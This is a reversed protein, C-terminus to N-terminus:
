LSPMQATRSTQLAAWVRAPTLPMRLDDVGYPRLADLVANVIAPPAGICGAEGAGKVGLPNSPAPTVLRGTVYGPPADPATPLTYSGLDTTLPRGDGDYVVEEFLAQAVGQLLSGELQGEVILPDLVVGCDDVAVLRRLTVLGTDQDVTVVAVCAGYPFNQAGSAFEQEAFLRGGEAHVAGAVEAVSLGGLHGALEGPPVGLLKAAADRLQERVALAANHLASGGVTASRSAFSGTGAPVADTDGQVVRVDSAPVGLADGVIRSWVSEHGQGLASSGSRAVVTGDPHVSVSGYETGAPDGNSREVYVCMGLGVTAGAARAAAVEGTGALDLAMRLAAAYDGGDYLAGTHTRYPMQEPRILNRLRVEAPDLGAAQAYADVAREMGYAAEPRGAGRYPGTPARNTVVIRTTVAVEDIDYAGQAMLRTFLPVASGNHPYAGVDGLIEVRAARIRGDETGALEVRQYMGRGHAGSEFQETRTQHWAVPRGLRAACATVVPYEPYLQAKMGFAGGVDPVVVRVAAPDLGVLDCMQRKLRHPAQHGCYITLRGDPGPAAVFAIPEMPVPALRPNEVEVTVRVPWRDLDPTAGEPITVAPLVLNTGADPFLLAAGDLAAAPTAVVPAPDYTATVLTAADAAVYPDDAVVVALPEGVYRIRDRVLPPRTMAPPAPRGHGLTAPIDKLDLDAAVFAAVVGPLSRAAEVDVTVGTASAVTARAFAAYLCGDPRIDATYRAGGNLLRADERRPQWGAEPLRESM